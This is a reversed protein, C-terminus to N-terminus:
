KKKTKKKKEDEKLLEELAKEREKEKRAKEKEEEIKEKEERRKAEKEEKEKVKKMEEKLDKLKQHEVMQAANQLVYQGWGPAYTNAEAVIEQLDAVEQQEAVQFHQWLDDGVAGQRMLQQLAPKEAQLQSMRRVAEMARRLLAAKLHLEPVPDEASLLAIYQERAENTGFWPDSQSVAVFF